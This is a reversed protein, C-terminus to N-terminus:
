FAVNAEVWFREVDNAAPNDADGDADYNAYKAILKINENLPLTAVVDVEEGYDTSGQESEFNHYIVKLTVDTKPCTVSGYVYADELGQVPTVLFVDAWGNFKHGTALPTKFSVGDDSGLVEYGAGVGVVPLGGSLDVKYYDARYDVGDVTASNDSQQAYELDCALKFEEGCPWSATGRLGYTDGSNAAGVAESGLDLLYAYAGGSFRECPTYAVNILHSDSDFEAANPAAGAPETGNEQGFIRYVNDIYAYTLKVGAMSPSQVQAADYTQENQRWGVNGVFRANDLIIRQRGVTVLAKSMPCQAEIYAQNLETGEVDAIVTKDAGGPNTGAQNYDDGDNLATVDEFEVFARVGMYPKTSYGLRTRITVADSDDSGDAEAHEYRLRLNMSPAGQTLADLLSVEEADEALVESGMCVACIIVVGSMVMKAAKQM